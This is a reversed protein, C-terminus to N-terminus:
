QVLLSYKGGTTGLSSGDTKDLRDFWDISEPKDGSAQSGSRRPLSAMIKCHASGWVCACCTLNTIKGRRNSYEWALVTFGVPVTFGVTSHM